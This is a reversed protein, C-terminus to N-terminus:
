LWHWKGTGGGVSRIADDLSFVLNMVNGYWRDGNHEIYEFTGHVPNDGELTMKMRWMTHVRNGATLIFGDEGFEQMYIRETLPPEAPDKGESERQLYREAPGGSQCRGDVDTTSCIVGQVEQRTCPMTFTGRRFAKDPRFLGMEFKARTNCHRIKM